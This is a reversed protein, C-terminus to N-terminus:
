SRSMRSAKLTVATSKKRIAAISISNKLSEVLVTTAGDELSLQTLNKAVKTLIELGILDLLQDAVHLDVRLTFDVVVLENIEQNGVLRPETTM